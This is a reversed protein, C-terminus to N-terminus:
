GLRALLKGHIGGFAGNSMVVVTDGPQALAVTREVIAELSAPAEASLGATRLAQVLQAVDLQEAVPIEPRGVPAILSVSAAAFSEAYRAQHLQRSATSSRPEFVAILAGQPHRARLSGLTEAVATPHHAFDDYVRVGGAEGRLQQRRGVGSFRPLISLLTALEVGAGEHAMVLACLANRANHRGHLAFCAEGLFEGRARFRLAQGEPGSAGLEVTYDPQRELECGGPDDLCAFALRRCRARAAVACVEADDARYVLMGSEDIREVFGEFAARYAGMDPYIDIHDQEIAHICAVEPEYQWFKPSKEFFASDYEDGEVVFPGGDHGVRFSEDFDLPIGGVLFGPERGSQELLFALLASTTTKGHTGAVVFSRRRALVLERLAGPMSRYPLDRELAASAEPNDRRCVNGIVVLDPAKELHAPDYGERTEIGWRVLAEGMPPYFATDSGSVRHGLQQLLGALSGMGTGCIGILHVHM